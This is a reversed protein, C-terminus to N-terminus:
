PFIVRIPGPPSLTSSIAGIKTVNAAFKLKRNKRSNGHSASTWHSPIQPWPVRIKGVRTFHALSNLFSFKNKMKLIRHVCAVLFCLSFIARVNLHLFRLLAVTSCASAPEFRIFTELLRVVSFSSALRIFDQGAWKFDDLSRARQAIHDIDRLSVFSNLSFWSNMGPVSHSMLSFISPWYMYQGPFPVCIHALPRPPRPSALPWFGGADKRWHNGPM